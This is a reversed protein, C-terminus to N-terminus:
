TAGKQVARSFNDKFRRRKGLMSPLYFREM